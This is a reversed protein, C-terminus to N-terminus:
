RRGAAPHTGLGRECRAAATRTRGGPVVPAWALEVGEDELSHRGVRGTEDDGFRGIYCARWGLRACGVLASAVQGGPMWSLDDIRQKSNNVPFRELGVVLDM